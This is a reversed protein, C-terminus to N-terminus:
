RVRGPGADRRRDAGAPDRTVNVTARQGGSTATIIATGPAQATVVGADTVTAVSPSASAWDVPRDLRGGSTGLVRVTLTASGGPDLRLDPPSVVVSAVAEQSVTIALTGRVGDVTASIIARGPQRATVQGAGSVALM